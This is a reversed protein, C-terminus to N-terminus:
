PRPHSSRGIESDGTQHRRVGPIAWIKDFLRPRDTYVALTAADHIELRGARGPIMPWGQSDTVVHYRGPLAQLREAAAHKENIVHENRVIMHDRRIITRSQGYNGKEAPTLDAM